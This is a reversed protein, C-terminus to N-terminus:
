GGFLSKSSKPIVIVVEDGEKLGSVIETRDVGRIGLTVPNYNLSPNMKNKEAASAFIQVAKGNQYNKIAANTVTLVNERTEIVIEVNASMQPKIKEDPNDIRIYSNYSIVGSSNTGITDLKYVSGSYEKDAIADFTIKSLQGEKLKVIDVESSAVKIL